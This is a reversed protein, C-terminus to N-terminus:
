FPKRLNIGNPLKFYTMGLGNITSIIFPKKELVRCIRETQRPTLQKWMNGACWVFSDENAKIVVEEFNRFDENTM